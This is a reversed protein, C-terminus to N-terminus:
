HFKQKKLIFISLLHTQRYGPFTETRQLFHAQGLGYKSLKSLFAVLSDM